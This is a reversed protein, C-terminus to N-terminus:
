DADQRDGNEKEEFNQGKDQRPQDRNGSRNTSVDTEQEKIGMAEEVDARLVRFEVTYWVGSPKTELEQVIQDYLQRGRQQEGSHWYALALAMRVHTPLELGALQRATTFSEIAAEYDGTGIQAEGLVNWLDPNKASMQLVRKALAVARPPDRFQKALCTALVWSLHHPYKAVDPYEAALEEFLKFAPRYHDAAQQRKGAVFLVNALGYSAWAVQTRSDNHNAQNALWTHSSEVDRRAVAEAEEDRGMATLADRLRERHAHLSMRFQVVGPYQHSMREYNAISERSRKAAEDLRNQELALGALCDNIRHDTPAKTQGGEQALEDRISLVKRFIEESLHRKHENGYLAHGLEQLGRERLRRDKPLNPFDAELRDLKELGQRILREAEEYRREKNQWYSGRRFHWDVIKRRYEPKTPFDGALATWLALSQDFCGDAEDLRNDRWLPGGLQFISEALEERYTPDNRFERHLLQLLRSGQRHADTSKSENGLQGHIQGVRRYAYATELRIEPDDGKQKLFGEYFELADELLERRIHELHPEWQIEEAVQTFLRDVAKLAIRLHEEAREYQQKAEKANEQAIAEQRKAEERQKQADVKADREQTAAVSALEAQDRARQAENRAINAQWAAVVTGTVLSIAVIATTILAGKNRRSFKRIRYAASPPCAEVPEEHLYREVDRALENATEYRRTRDKELAKMVIWDLDGRVQQSLRRPDTRRREAVTDAQDALTSLRTSPKPPEEERIIRRLEEYSAEKLREKAFPTSGTLLEYLLVGLSYIDSRTDVDLPSMEAQEPSMYLPTGIMQAFNTLLTQETLRQNIAKAVGFDIIKPVPKGDQMAILVNTPKVDRHIIGKQHAHQIAQCVSVFLELRERTTLNCQDCYETIPVGKVLEMVFYPRGSETAGADLVSAIHPHNMMSLAQKEADFRAIVERSDMGPKIIKLAVKRRVPETQEARYVVGFGGEGIQELLKYPGILTGPHETVPPINETALVEAAAKELFAGANDHFQLLKEVRQRLEPNDGCAEELYTSRGETRQQLDSEFIEQENM